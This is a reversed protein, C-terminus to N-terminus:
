GGGKEEGVVQGDSKGATVSNQKGVGVSGM